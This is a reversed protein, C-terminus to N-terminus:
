KVQLGTMSPFGATGMATAISGWTNAVLIADKYEKCSADYLHEQDRVLALLTTVKQPDLKQGKPMNTVSPVPWTVIYVRHIYHCSEPDGAPTEQMSIYSKEGLPCSRFWM